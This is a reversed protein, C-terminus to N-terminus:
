EDGLLSETFQRVICRERGKIGKAEVLAALEEAFRLLERKRFYSVGQPKDECCAGAAETGYAIKAEYRSGRMDNMTM